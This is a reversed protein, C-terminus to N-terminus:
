CGGRAWAALAAAGLACKLGAAAGAFAPGGAWFALPAPLLVGVLWDAGTLGAGCAALEPAADAALGM